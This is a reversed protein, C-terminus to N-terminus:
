GWIATIFLLITAILLAIWLRKNQRELRHTISEHVVYPITSLKERCSDCTKKM